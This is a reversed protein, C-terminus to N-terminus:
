LRCLFFHQFLQQLLLLQQSNYFYEINDAFSSIDNLVQNEENFNFVKLGYFNKNLDWPKGNALHDVLSRSRISTFIGVNTINANTFNSLMFDIVRYRAAIPLSGISRSKALGNMNHTPSDSNVIGLCKRVM